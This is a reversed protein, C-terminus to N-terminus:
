FFPVPFPYHLLLLSILSHSTFFPYIPLTLSFSTLSLPLKLVSPFLFLPFLFIPLNTTNSSLLYPYRFSITPSPHTFKVNSFNISHPLYLSLCFFSPFSSGVSITSIAVFSPLSYSTLFALLFYQSRM